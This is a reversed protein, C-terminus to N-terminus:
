PYMSLTYMYTYMYDFKKGINKHIEFNSTLNGFKIDLQPDHDFIEFDCNTPSKEKKPIFTRM